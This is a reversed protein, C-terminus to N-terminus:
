LYFRTMVMTLVGRYFARDFSSYVDGKYAEEGGAGRSSEAACRPQGPGTMCGFRVRPPGEVVRLDFTSLNSTRSTKLVTCSPILTLLCPCYTLQTRRPLYRQAPTQTDVSISPSVHHVYTSDIHVTCCALLISAIRSRSLHTLVCVHLLALM